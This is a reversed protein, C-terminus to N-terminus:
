WVDSMKRQGNKRVNAEEEFEYVVAVDGIGDDGPFEHAAGGGDKRWEDEEHWNGYTQCREKDM